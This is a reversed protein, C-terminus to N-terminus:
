SRAFKGVYRRQWPTEVARPHYWTRTFAVADSPALGDLVGLCALATGTRGVGGRCAVELRETPARRWAEELVVRAAARDKPLWWDPWRIWRSEWSTEPPRRGALYLGFEPPPEGPLDHM